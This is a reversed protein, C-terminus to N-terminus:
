SKNRTVVLIETLSTTVDLHFVLKEQDPKYIHIIFHPDPYCPATATKILSGIHKSGAHSPTIVKAEM